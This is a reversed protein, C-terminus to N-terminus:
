IITFEKSKEGCLVLDKIGEYDPSYVKIGKIITLMKDVGIITNLIEKINDNNYISKPYKSALM